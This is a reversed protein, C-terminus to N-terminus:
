VYRVYYTTQKAVDTFTFVTGYISFYHHTNIKMNRLLVSKEPKLKNEPILDPDKLNMYIDENLNKSM